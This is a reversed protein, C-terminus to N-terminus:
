RKMRKRITEHTRGDAIDLREIKKAYWSDPKSPFEKKLKQYENEWRAYRDQTKRKRQDLITLSARTTTRVQKIAVQQAILYEEIATSVQGRAQRAINRLGAEAAAAMSALRLGRKANLDDKKIGFRGAIRRICEEFASPDIYRLTYPGAEMRWALKDLIKNLTSADDIVGGPLLLTTRVSQWVNSPWTRTADTVAAVIDRYVALPISILAHATQREDICRSMENGLRTYGASVIGRLVADQNQRLLQLKRELLASVSKNLVAISM